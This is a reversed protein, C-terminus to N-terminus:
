RCQATSAPLQNLATITTAPPPPPAPPPPAPPYDLTFIIGRCPTGIRLAVYPVTITFTETYLSNTSPNCLMNCMYFTTIDCM